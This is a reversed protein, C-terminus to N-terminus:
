EGAYLDYAIILQYGKEIYERLLYNYKERTLVVDLNTINGSADLRIDEQNLGIVERNASDKAYAVVVNELIPEGLELLEEPEFDEVIPGEVDPDAQVPLFAPVNEQEKFAYFDIKFTRRLSGPKAYIWKDPIPFIEEDANPIVNYPDILGEYMQTNPMIHVSSQYGVVQNIDTFAQEVITYTKRDQLEIMDTTIESKFPIEKVAVVVKSTNVKDDLYYVYFLIFGVGFALILLGLFAGIYKKLFPM